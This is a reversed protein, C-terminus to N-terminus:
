ELDKLLQRAIVLRQIESTGEGIEMLKADRYFREVEYDRIYGYGGHIQIARDTARVAVESAFLKAMAAQKTFRQGADKLQAAQYVLLRAAEIETAMDALMWQIAQFNCIPQGFQVRERSFKLSRELAGQAIGVSLAGIVIRGEDLTIMAQKFGEGEEGLRNEVPVRCDEFILEQTNSARLGLKNEIKGPRFGPFNKEVIFSSLGKHGAQPDTKAVVVLIEAVGGNTIFIKNGNLIYYSGDRRAVTRIGAVDSGAEPETLGLAGLVKGEALPRLYKEKQEETGFTYIPFACLSIHAALTIATSACVRATEEILIAFALTDMGAGGYEEPFPVGLFGLDAMKRIVEWPFEGTEDWQIAKPAIESEAFERVTQRLIQHEESLEMVKVLDFELKREIEFL